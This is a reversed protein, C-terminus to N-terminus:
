SVDYFEPRWNRSPGSILHSLLILFVVNPYLLLTVFLAECAVMGWLSLTGRSHAFVLLFIPVVRTVSEM